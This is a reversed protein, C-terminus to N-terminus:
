DVLVALHDADDEVAVDLREDRVVGVRIGLRTGHANMGARNLFRQSLDITRLLQGVLQASLSRPLRLSDLISSEPLRWFCCCRWNFAPSPRRSSWGALPVANM